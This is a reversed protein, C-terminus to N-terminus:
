SLRRENTRETRAKRIYKYITGQSMNYKSVLHAIVATRANDKKATLSSYEEYIRLALERKRQQLATRFQQEM